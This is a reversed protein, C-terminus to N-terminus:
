GVKRSLSSTIVILVLHGFHPESASRAPSPM